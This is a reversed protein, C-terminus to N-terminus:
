HLPYVGNQQSIGRSKKGNLVPCPDLCLWINTFPVKSLRALAMTTHELFMIEESLVVAQMELQRIPVMLLFIVPQVM